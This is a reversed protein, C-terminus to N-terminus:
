ALGLGLYDMGAGGYQQPVSIGLLVLRKMGGIILDRDFRHQRDLDRIKPSVERAGWERISQELLRQEDTLELNMMAASSLVVGGGATGRHRTSARWYSARCREALPPPHVRHRRYSFGFRM